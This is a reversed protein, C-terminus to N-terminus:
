EQSFASLLELIPQLGEPSITYIKMTFQRGGPLELADEKINMWGLDAMESWLAENPSGPGTTMGSEPTQSSAVLVSIDAESMAGMRQLLSQIQEETAMTRLKTLARM